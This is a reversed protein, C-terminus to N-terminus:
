MILCKGNLGMAELQEEGSEKQNAADKAKAEEPFWEQMFRLLAWDVNDRNAKLVVPARCLPCDDQGRKQMKVLCRVCFLHGCDLRIPKFAISTCIACAYDDIQPIVPLLKETLAALLVHPLTTKTLWPAILLPSSDNQPVSARVLAAYESTGQLATRKDHKKLIKRAAEANAKQFKKLDLLMVNLQMFRDFAKKCQKSKMRRGDLRRKVLEAAFAKLRVEAEEVDREGRFRETGSEFIQAEVWLSFIERWIALDHQGKRTPRCADSITQSLEIVDQTFQDKLVEALHELSRLAQSFMQFFMADSPLEIVVDGPHQADRIIHVGHPHKSPDAVVVGNLQPVYDDEEDEDDLASEMDRIKELTTEVTGLDGSGRQLAWLPNESEYKSSSSVLPPAEDASTSAVPVSAEGGDTTGETDTTDATADAPPSAVSQISPRQESRARTGSSLRRLQLRLRSTFNESNPGDIEYSAMSRRRGKYKPHANGNLSFGELGKDNESTPSDPIEEIHAPSTSRELGAPPPKDSRELLEHLVEPSLGVSQLEDVVNKILKKLQGYEIASATWEPPFSSERLIREYQKGYKM